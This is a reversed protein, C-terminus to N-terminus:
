FDRIREIVPKIDIIPTSDIAELGDVKLWRDGEISLLKARHLGIPNPRDPSRTAFVGTLRNLVDGRPYVKFVSRRAEHLWTLIWIDQGSEIGDLCDVFDPLIELSADPANEWPQRPAGTRKKLTSHVYGIPSIDFSKQSMSLKRIGFRAGLCDDITGCGSSRGIKPQFVQILAIHEESRPPITILLGTAHIM